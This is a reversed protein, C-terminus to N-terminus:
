INPDSAERFPPGGCHGVPDIPLNYPKAFITSVTSSYIPHLEYGSPPASSTSLRRRKGHSRDSDLMNHRCATHRTAIQHRFEIKIQWFHDNQEGPPHTLAHIHVNNEDVLFWLRGRLPYLRAIDNDYHEHRIMPILYEGKVSREHYLPDSTAYFPRQTPSALYVSPDSSPSPGAYLM